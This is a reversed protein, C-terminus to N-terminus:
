LEREYFFNLASNFAHLLRGIADADAFQARRVETLTFCRAFVPHSVTTSTV